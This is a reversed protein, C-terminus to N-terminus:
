PLRASSSAIGGNKDPPSMIRLTSYACVIKLSGGRLNSAPVLLMASAIANPTATSYRSPRPM